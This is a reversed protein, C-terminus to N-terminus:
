WGNVENERACRTTLDILGKLVMIMGGKKPTTNSKTNEHIM